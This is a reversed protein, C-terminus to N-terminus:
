VPARGISSDIWTKGIGIDYIAKRDVGFKDAVSTKTDGNALMERIAAVKEEDLKARGNESGTASRGKAVRDAVNDAHTGLFLHDPNVCGPNNCHHLVAMSEPITGNYMEWSVRHSYVVKGDLKFRGYGDKNKQAKWEWCGNSKKVKDFFRKM